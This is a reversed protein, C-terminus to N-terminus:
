LLQLCDEVAVVQLRLNIRQLANRQRAISFQAIYKGTRFISGSMRSSVAAFTTSSPNFIMECRDDAVEAREFALRARLEGEGDSGKKSGEFM